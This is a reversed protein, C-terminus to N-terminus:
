YPKANRSPTNEKRSATNTGAMTDKARFDYLWQTAMLHYAGTKDVYCVEAWNLNQFEKSNKYM